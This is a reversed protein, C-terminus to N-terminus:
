VPIKKSPRCIECPCSSRLFEFGYIGTEHHDSFHFRVAYRGVPSYKSILINQAVQELKLIRKGTREDVCQACPCLFRLVRTEFLSRHGDEWTLMIEKEGVMRIDAPVNPKM